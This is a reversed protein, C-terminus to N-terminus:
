ARRVWRLIEPLTPRKGYMLVGIRFIRATLWSMGITTIVMFVLSIIAQLIVPDALTFTEPAALALRMTMLSPATFPFLSLAIAWTSESASTLTPALMFPTVFVLVIPMMFNQAEKDSNVISGVAAFLTSFLFYGILLFFVFFTLTIPNLLTDISDLAAADISGPGISYRLAGGIIGWIAVQTFAALGLGIIKGMMLQFPSVSSVMVEMIRTTKEEIVSRMLVQGYNFILTFMAIAYLMIGFFTSGFSKSKGAPSVVEIDVRRTLSALSDSPLDVNALKLREASLVTTIRREARRLVKIDFKKSIVILSEARAIDPFLIMVGDIEGNQVLGNLESKRREWNTVDDQSFREISGFSFQPVSDSTQLTLLGEKIRDALEGNEFDVFTYEQTPSSTNEMILAPLFISVGMLVPIALIGLIFSKKQVIELYERKVITLMKSM